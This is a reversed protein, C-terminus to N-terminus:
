EGCPAWYHWCWPWSHPSPEFTIQCWAKGFKGLIYIQRKVSEWFWSGLIKRLHYVNWFLFTLSLCKLLFVFVYLPHKSNQALNCILCSSLVSPFGSVNHVLFLGLERNTMKYPLFLCLKWEEGSSNSVKKLFCKGHFTQCKFILQTVILRCSSM